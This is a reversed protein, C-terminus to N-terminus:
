PLTGSRILCGRKEVSDWGMLAMNIEGTDSIEVETYRPAPDPTENSWCGDNIYQGALGESYWEGQHVHGMIVLKAEGEQVINEAYWNLGTRDSTFMALACNPLWDPDDEKYWLNLINKYSNKVDTITVNQSSDAFMFVSDDNLNAGGSNAEEVLLTILARVMVTGIEIGNDPTYEECSAAIIKGMAGWVSFASETTKSAIIRSMYYGLPQNNLIEPDGVPVPANFMDIMNGHECHLLNEYKQNYDDISIWQVCKDGSSIQTIQAPTVSMDHNGNQYYVNPLNKVCEELAKIISENWHQIIQESNWPIYDLPYVWLDLFDGLILLEKVSSDHAIMNLMDTLYQPHEGHLWSYEAGNGLHSDSLIVIKTPEIKNSM